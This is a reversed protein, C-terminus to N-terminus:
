PSAHTTTPPKDRTRNQEQGGYDTSLRLAASV